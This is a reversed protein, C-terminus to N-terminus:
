VYLPIYIGLCDGEEVRQKQLSFIRLPPPFLFMIRYGLMQCIFIM